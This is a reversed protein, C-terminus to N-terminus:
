GAEAGSPGAVPIVARPDPVPRATDAATEAATAPRVRLRLGDVAVVAVPTGVPVEAGAPLDVATAHWLEGDLFVFGDPALPRRVTGVHGRLGERGTAPRRLRARLVAAGLFLFFGLLLATTTWIVAPSVEYGPPAGEAVLLYSGLVFSVLGGVTLTGFSPVFLDVAFLLFAFGILLVGAWNVPITGLAYLALLLFLGGVVGPLIAGPNSLELFLGLSGLSLLIYAITPDALLQLFQEMWSMGREEIRANATALIAPGSQLRVERGNIEALLTGVDPALLDVVDLSLAEDATVNAADRVAREAWEANRGRLQALNKIQSVADNTVKRTMTEDGDSDEGLFVPSASGIRTGPAMAAVHAAYTIFVGASAARAGEPAVHVVVPVESQLIDEIIDDMASSLGGPTDLRLVVAAAGDREAREIARDVYGAMVPTITGDVEVVQVLPRDDAGAAPAVALLALGLAILLLPVYDLPHPKAAPSPARTSM